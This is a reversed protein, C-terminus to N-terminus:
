AMRLLYLHVTTDHDEIQREFELGLQTLVRISPANDPLVIGALRTLGLDARVFQLVRRAAEIVYGQGRAAPLLAFGIDVDELYDRKVLGCLGLPRGDARAEMVWLGFGNRRFSDLLREEIYGAADTANRVGRDGINRLWDPDTLLELIFNADDARPLRLKLRASEIPAAM